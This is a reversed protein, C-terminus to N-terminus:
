AAGRLARRVEGARQGALRVRYGDAFARVGGGGREGQRQERAAIGFGIGTSMTEERQKLAALVTEHDDPKVKGEKVLLDVLEAIAAWRENSQMQPIIQEVTLLSSLDM